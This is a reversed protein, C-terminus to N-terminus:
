FNLVIPNRPVTTISCCCCCCCCCGRECVIRSLHGAGSKVLGLYFPTLNFGDDTLRGILPKFSDVKWLSERSTARPDNRENRWIHRDVIPEKTGAMITIDTQGCDRTSTLHLKVCPFNPNDYKSDKLGLNELIYCINPTELTERILKKVLIKWFSGWIHMLWCLLKQLSWNGQAFISPAVPYGARIGFFLWLTM